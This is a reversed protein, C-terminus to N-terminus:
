HLSRFDLNSRTLFYSASWGPKNFSLNNLLEDSILEKSKEM